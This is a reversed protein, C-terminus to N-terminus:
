KEKPAAWLAMLLSTEPYPTRARDVSESSDFDERGMRHSFASMNEIEWRTTPFFYFSNNGINFGATSSSIHKSAIAKGALTM